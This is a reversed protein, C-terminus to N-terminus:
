RPATTVELRESYMSVDKARYQLWHCGLDRLREKPVDRFGAMVLEAFLLLLLILLLFVFSSTDSTASRGSTSHASWVSLASHLKEICVQESGKMM